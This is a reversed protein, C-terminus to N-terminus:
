PRSFQRLLSAFASLFDCFICYAYKTQYLLKSGGDGTLLFSKLVIGRRHRAASKWGGAQHMTIVSSALSICSLLSAVVALGWALRATKARPTM